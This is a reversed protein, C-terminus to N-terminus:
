IVRSPASSICFPHVQNLLDPEDRNLALSISEGSSHGPLNLPFFPWFIFTMAAPHKHPQKSFRSHPYQIFEYIADDLQEVRPALGEGWGWSRSVSAHQRRLFLCGRQIPTSAVVVYPDGM